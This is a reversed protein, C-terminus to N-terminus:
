LVRLSDHAYLRFSFPGHDVGWRRWRALTGHSDFYSNGGRPVGGELEAPRPQEESEERQENRRSHRAREEEHALLLAPPLCSPDGGRPAPPGM